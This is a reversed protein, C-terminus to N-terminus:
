APLSHYLRRADFMRLPMQLPFATGIEPILTFGSPV